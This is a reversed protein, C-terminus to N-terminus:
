IRFHQHKTIHPKCLLAIFGNIAQKPCESKDYVEFVFQKFHNPKLSMPAKLQYKIDESTILKDNLADSYWGNGQLAFGDTSEIYYRGTDIGGDYLRIEATPMYIPWGYNDCHM